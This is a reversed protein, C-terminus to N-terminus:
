NCNFPECPVFCDISLGDIRQFKHNANFFANKTNATVPQEHVNLMPMSDFTQRRVTEIHWHWLQHALLLSTTATTKHCNAGDYHLLLRRPESEEIEPTRKRVLNQAPVMPLARFMNIWISFGNDAYLYISVLYFRDISMSLNTSCIDQLVSWNKSCLQKGIM